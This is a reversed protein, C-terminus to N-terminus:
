TPSYITGSTYGNVNNYSSPSIGKIEGTKKSDLMLNYSGNTNKMTDMM